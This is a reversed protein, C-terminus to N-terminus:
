PARFEHFILSMEISKPCDAYQEDNAIMKRSRWKEYISAYTYINKEGDTSEQYSVYQKSFEM